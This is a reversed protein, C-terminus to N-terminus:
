ICNRIIDEVEERKSKESKWNLNDRYENLKNFMQQVNKLRNPNLTAQRELTVGKYFNSGGMLAYVPNEKINRVNINEGESMLNANSLTSQALERMGSDLEARQALYSIPDIIGNGTMQANIDHMGELYQAFESEKGALKAINHYFDILHDNMLNFGNSIRNRDRAWKIRSFGTLSRETGKNLDPLKVDALTLGRGGPFIEPFTGNLDSLNESILNRMDFKRNFFREFQAEFVQLNRLSGRINKQMDPGIDVQAELDGEVAMKTLFQLGRKYTKSKQFPISVVRGEYVGIDHKRQVPQMFEYIFANGYKMLGRKLYQHEVDYFTTLDPMNELFEITERNLLQRYDYKLIDGLTTNNSYFLKRLARIEKIDKRADQSLGTHNPMMDKINQITAYQIAGEKLDEKEISVFNIPKLDKAKKSKWYDEPVLEKALEGELQKIVKNLKNQSSNRTKWPVKFNNGIQAWKKKLSGILKIKNNHDFAGKQIEYQFRDIASSHDELTGEMLQGYWDDMLKRVDGTMGKVRTQSFPDSEHLRVALRDIVSGRKGDSVEVANKHVTEDVIRYSPKYYTKDNGDTDKYTGSKVRFLDKFEQTQGWKQKPNDPNRRRRLKYYISDSINRNFSRWKEAANIVDDYKPARQEGSNEWLSKGTSNLFSNYQGLMEKIISKELTSLEVEKMVGPSTEIVKRFIRVRKGTSNKGKARMSNVFGYGENRVQEPTVSVNTDGDKMRPFLFDDRWTRLNESLNPNLEGTGDIIYQTELASRTFYDTHEYDLFIRYKDGENGLLIRPSVDQKVLKGDKVVKGERVYESMFPDNRPDVPVSGIKELAGLTRPVKQVQGINKAFQESEAIMRWRNDRETSASQSFNFDKTKMLNSPDVGQVWFQSTRQIHDYMEPKHSFFYDAKDVDYDGEFVNVVDLSSLQISNGYTKELFGKLGMLALDNPRTRPKRNVIVGVQINSKFADNMGELIGHLQGLTTNEMSEITENIFSDRDKKDLKPMNNALEEAVQKTSLTDAGKVFRTEFGKENLESLNMFQEHHGLMVEGRMIMEGKDNVLTPKLRNKSDAAQIMISQGGFRHSNPDNQNFVSKNSNVLSNIYMAYIKNKTMNESYSMPNADRSFSSFWALNNIHNLGQNAALNPVMGEDFMESIVFQRMAIPDSAAYDMYDLNRSLTKEYLTNFLKGSEINNAYNYDSMGMSAAVFNSDKNPMIGLADLPIKRIRGEGIPLGPRDGSIYSWPRNILSTDMDGKINGNLVKAGSKTLLIDIAPNNRFFADMSKAYVFLTKGLLLPADSGGSSIVPKVPNRSSADHGQIAHAFTMVRESVFSISDFASVGEHANGIMMDWTWGKYDAGFEDRVMKEVEARVTNAAMEDNWISVNFGDKDALSNLMDSLKKRGVLRHGSALERIYDNDARVFKKTEFLKIRGSVKDVNKGNLFDIFFQDGDSGTLMERHTLRHLAYEYQAETVIEGSEMMDLINKMEDLQTRPIREDKGYDKVFKEWHPNLNKLHAKEIAIADVGKGIRFVGIGEGDKVPEGDIDTKVNMLRLFEKKISTAQEKTEKDVKKADGAFIDVYKLRTYRGDVTVYIPALPNVVYRPIDLKDYLADMRSYQVVDEEKVVKGHKYQIVDVKVQARQKTLLAVIDDFAQQAQKVRNEPSIVPLDNEFRERIEKNSMSLRVWEGNHNEVHIGGLLKEIVSKNLVRKNIDGHYILSQFHESQEKSSEGTYDAGEWRYKQWFQQMTMHNSSDRESVDTLLRDKMGREIEEYRSEAYKQTVGYAEIDQKLEGVLKENLKKMDIKYQGKGKGGIKTLVKAATLWGMLREKGLGTDMFASIQKELTAYSKGESPLLNLFKTLAITADVQGGESVMKENIARMLNTDLARIRGVEESVLEKGDAIARDAWENYKIADKYELTGEQFASIDLKRIRFGAAKGEVSAEFSVMEVDSLKFLIDAQELSLKTKSIRDSIIYDVIQNHMWDKQLSSKIQFGRDSLFDKLDNIDSEKIKKQSIPEDSVLKYGGTASQITLVRALLRKAEAVGDAGQAFSEEDFRLSKIDKRLQAQSETAPHYLIDNNILKPILKDIEAYGPRFIEAVSEAARLAVNRSLITIYDNYSGHFTFKDVFHRNEPYQAQIRLEADDVTKYVKRLLEESKITKFREDRNPNEVKSGILTTTTLVTNLSAIKSGLAEVATDGTLTNGEADVLLPTGDEKTLLGDRARQKLEETYNIRLPVRGPDKAGVYDTIGLENMEDSASLVDVIDTFNREFDKTASLTAKDLRHLIDESTGGKLSPDIEELVKLIKNAENVSIEEYPKIEKTEGHQKLSEYVAKFRPNENGPMSVSEEGKKLPEGTIEPSDSLIGLEKAKDTVKMMEADRFPSNISSQRNDFTPISSLQGPGMGLTMLNARYQNIEKSRMDFKGPNSHRQVWAGILFHPLLEHVGMEHGKFAMDSFSHLNFLAGGMLMRPWVESLNRLSESNAFKILEKGAKKKQSELFSILAQKSEGKFTPSIQDLINGELLNIGTVKKGGYAIDVIYKGGEDKTKKASEGFFKATAELQEKTLNKYIGKRAFAAKAGHMFDKKWSAASGKPKLWSLQSFAAGTAVGWMPATWDFEHDEIMSVGEFVTDIMGFMLSDNIAHALVKAAKPNAALIGREAIVGYFDQIPRKFVNSTFMKKINAAERTSMTKSAVGQNVYSSLYDEAKKVFEPGRINTNIQARQALAKYGGTVEKITQDTLGRDKGIKAMGKIVEDVHQRGTGKIAQKAVAQVAKAGLKMPAGAVFGAFGGLAGAWKAYPDDFDIFEEEDVLAGPIGFAATDAFSWLAAGVANLASGTPEKIDAQEVHEPLPGAGFLGGGSVASPSPASQGSLSKLANDIQTLSATRGRRKLEEQLQRTLNDAM